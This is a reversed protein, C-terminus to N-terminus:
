LPEADQGDAVLKSGKCCMGHREWFDELEERVVESVLTRLREQRRPAPPLPVAFAQTLLQQLTVGLARSLRDLHRLRLETRGRFMNSITGHGVGIDRELERISRGSEEVLVRLAERLRELEEEMARM